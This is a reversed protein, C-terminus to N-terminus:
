ELTNSVPGPLNAPAKENQARIDPLSGVVDDRSTIILAEAGHGSSAGTMRTVACGDRFPQPWGLRQRWGGSSMAAQVLAANSNAGVASMATASRRALWWPM